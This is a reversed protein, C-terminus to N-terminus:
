KDRLYKAQHLPDYANIGNFTTIFQLYTINILVDIMTVGVDYYTILMNVNEM